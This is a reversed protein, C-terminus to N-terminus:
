GQLVHCPGQCINRYFASKSPATVMSQQIKNPSCNGLLITGTKLAGVVKSVVNEKDRTSNVYKRVFKNVLEHSELFKM